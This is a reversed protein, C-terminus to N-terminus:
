PRMLIPALLLDMSSRNTVKGRAQVTGPQKVL